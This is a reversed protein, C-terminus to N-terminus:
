KEPHGHMEPKVAPITDSHVIKPSSRGETVKLVVQM